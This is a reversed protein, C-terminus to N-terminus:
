LDSCLAPASSPVLIEQETKAPTQLTHVLDLYTHPDQLECADRSDEEGQTRETCDVQPSVDRLSQTLANGM